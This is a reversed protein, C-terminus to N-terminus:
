KYVINLLIIRINVFFHIQKGAQKWNYFSPDGKVFQDEEEEDQLQLGTNLPTIYATTISLVSDRQAFACASLMLFLVVSFINKKM